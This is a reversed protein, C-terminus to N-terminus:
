SFGAGLGWSKHLVVGTGSGPSADRMHADRCYLTSVLPPPKQAEAQELIRIVEDVCAFRASLDERPSHDGRSKEQLMERRKLAVELARGEPGVTHVDARYALLLKVVALCGAIDGQAAATCLPTGPGNGLSDVRAGRRLLSKVIEPKGMWAATNLPFGCLGGPESPDAGHRLLLKVKTSGREPITGHVGCVECRGASDKILTHDTMYRNVYTRGWLASATLTGPANQVATHQSSDTTELIKAARPLDNRLIARYLPKDMTVSSTTVAPSHHDGVDSKLSSSSRQKRIINKMSTSANKLSMQRLRAQLGGIDYRKSDTAVDCPASAYTNVSIALSRFSNRSGRMLAGVSWRDIQRSKRSAILDNIEALYAQLQSQEWHRLKTCLRFCDSDPLTSTWALTSYPHHGTCPESHQFNFGCHGRASADQHHLLDEEHIFGINCEECRYEGRFIDLHRRLHQLLEEPDDEFAIGCMMCTKHQWSDVKSHMSTRGEFASSQFKSTSSPPLFPVMDPLSDEAPMCRVSNEISYDSLRSSAGESRPAMDGMSCSPRLLPTDLAMPAVTSPEQVEPEKIDEARISPVPSFNARSTLNEMTRVRRVAGSRYMDYNDAFRFQAPPTTDDKLSTPLSSSSGSRSNTGLSPTTLATRCSRMSSSRASGDLSMAKESGNESSSSAHEGGNVSPPSKQEASEPHQENLHRKMDHGRGFLKGCVSCAHKKNLPLGLKKRHQDTHRHRALARKETYSTGCDQCEFNTRPRKAPRMVDYDAEEDCEDVRLSGKRPDLERLSFEEEPVAALVHGLAGQPTFQQPQHQMMAHSMPWGSFEM